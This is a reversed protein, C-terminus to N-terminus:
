YPKGFFKINYRTPMAVAASIYSEKKHQATAEAPMQIVTFFEIIYVLLKKFTLGIFLEVPDKSM